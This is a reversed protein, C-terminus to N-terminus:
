EDRICYSNNVDVAEFILRRYLWDKQVAGEVNQVLELKGIGFKSTGNLKIDILRALYDNRNETVKPINEVVM